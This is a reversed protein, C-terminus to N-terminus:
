FTEELQYSEKREVSIHVRCMYTKFMQAFRKSIVAKLVWRDARQKLQFNIASLQVRPVFLTM